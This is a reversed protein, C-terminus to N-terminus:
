WVGPVEAVEGDALLWSGEGLSGDAAGPYVKMKGSNFQGVVLDDFGDGDVDHLAPAAFGPEETRIPTGAASLRVPEAFSLRTSVDISSPPQLPASSAAAMAFFLNFM